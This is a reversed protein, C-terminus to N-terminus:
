ILGRSPTSVLVSNDHYRISAPSSNSRANFALFIFPNVACHSVSFIGLVAYANRDVNGRGTFRYMDLAFYPLGCVVFFTIIVFTMKLTKMKANRRRQNKGPLVTNRRQWLRFTIRLYFSTILIFPIFFMVLAVWTLYTQKQWNKELSTHCGVTGQKDPIVKWLFAQPISLFFAILWAPIIIVYVGLRQKFPYLVSHYRDIAIAVVMNSSAFLTFCQLIKFLRCGVDGMLWTLELLEVIFQSLLAFFAVLLDACCLHVMFTNIRNRTRRNFWMWVFFGVNGGLSVIFLVALIILRLQRNYNIGFWVPIESVNGSLNSGLVM